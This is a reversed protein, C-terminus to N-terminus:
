SREKFDAVSTKGELWLLIHAFLFVEAVGAWMEEELGERGGERGMASKSIPTFRRSGM